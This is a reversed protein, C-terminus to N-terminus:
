LCFHLLRHWPTQQDQSHKSHAATLHNASVTQAVSRQRLNGETEKEGRNEQRRVVGFGSTSGVFINISGFTIPEWHKKMSQVLDYVQVSLEQEKAM